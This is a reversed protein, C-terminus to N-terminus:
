VKIWGRTSKKYLGCPIGQLGDIYVFPPANSHAPLVSAESCISSQGAEYKLWGVGECYFYLDCFNILSISYKTPNGDDDTQSPLSNGKFLSDSEIDSLADIICQQTAFNSPNNKPGNYLTPIM